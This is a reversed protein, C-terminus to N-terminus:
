SEPNGNMQGAETLHRGLFDAQMSSIEDFLPGDYVDFHGVPYRHLEVNNM